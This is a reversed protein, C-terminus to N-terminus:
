ALPSTHQNPGLSADKAICRSDVRFSPVGHCCVQFPDLRGETRCLGFWYVTVKTLHRLYIGGPGGFCAWILPRSGWTSPQVQPLVYDVGAPAYLTGTVWRDVHTFQQPQRFFVCM